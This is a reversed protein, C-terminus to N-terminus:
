GAPKIIQLLIRSPKENPRKKANFEAETIELIGTELYQVGKLNPFKKRDIIYTSTERIIPRDPALTAVLNILEGTLGILTSGTKGVVPMAEAVHGAFTVTQSVTDKAAKLESEQFMNVTLTLYGKVPSLPFIVYDAIELKSDDLVKDFTGLATSITKGDTKVECSIVIKADKDGGFFSDKLNDRIYCERILIMISDEHNVEKDVAPVQKAIRAGSIQMAASAALEPYDSADKLSHVTAIRPM